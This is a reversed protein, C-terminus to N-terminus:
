ILDSRNDNQAIPTEFNELAFEARADKHHEKLIQRYTDTAKRNYDRSGTHDEKPEPGKNKATSDFWEDYAKLYQDMEALYADKATEWYLEALWALLDAGLIATILTVFAAFAIFPYGEKALPIKAQTM